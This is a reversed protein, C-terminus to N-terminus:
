DKIDKGTYGRINYVALYYVDDLNLKDRDKLRLQMIKNIFGKRCAESYANESKLDYLAGIIEGASKRTLPENVFYRRLRSDLELSYKAPDVRYIGNLLLIALDSMKAKRGFGPDNSNGEAILGLSILQRVAPYSWNSENKNEFELKPIYFSQQKLYKQIQAYNDTKKQQELSAPTVNKLLSYVAVLGAAEGTAIGTGLSGASSAALSSFSAKAGTMLVNDSNKPVICGLPIGYQVPKGIIYRSGNALKGGEVALSGMAITSDFYRNEMIDNVSLTYQGKFHRYEPIFLSDAAKSFKWGNFEKFKSALFASLEQAEKVASTYAEKLQSSNDVDVGALEIGHIIVSESGTSVVSLDNIRTRVDYPTYEKLSSALIEKNRNVMSSVAAAKPGTMYFNLRVPMYSGKLNLDESGKYFPVKCASLLEGSRTADIFVKGKCNLKKGDTELNISKLSKGDVVASMLRVNYIIEINKEANVLRTVVTKYKKASFTKGLKHNLEALIGGNLIEKTSGSSAEIDTLLCKSVVGGLDSGNALVLTRAGLRTASIAAAIGEPEEGYVVVDYADTSGKSIGQAWRFSSKDREFFIDGTIFPRIGFLYVILAIAMVIVARIFSDRKMCGGILIDPCQAGPM